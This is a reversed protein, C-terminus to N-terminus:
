IGDGDKGEDAGEGDAADEEEGDGDDRESGDSLADSLIDSSDDLVAGDEPEVTEETPVWSDTSLDSDLPVEPLDELPDTDGDLAGAGMALMTAEPDVNARAAEVLTETGDGVLTAEHSVQELGMADAIRDGIVPLDPVMPHETAMQARCVIPRNQDGERLEGVGIVEPSVRVLHPHGQTMMAFFPPDLRGEVAIFVVMRDRPSATFEEDSMSEFSVVPIRQNNWNVQGLFWDESVEVGDPLLRLNGVVEAVAGRPVLLRGSIMPILLSYLDARTEAESM